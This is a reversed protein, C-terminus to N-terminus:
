FGHSTVDSVDDDDDHDDDCQCMQMALSGSVMSSCQGHSGIRDHM